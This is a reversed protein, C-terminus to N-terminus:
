VLESVKEILGKVWSKARELEGEQLPGETDLVVFTEAALVTAGKATLEDAIKPAAFGFTDILFRMFAGQTEKSFGTDFAAAKINQLGQGPITNLINKIPETFTGGHTPSGVLFLDINELEALADEQANLLSTVHQEGFGEIIAEAIKKTNGYVSDYVIVAKLTKAPAADTPLLPAETPVGGATTDTKVPVCAVLVTAGAVTALSALFERRSITKSRMITVGENRYQHSLKFLIYLKETLAFSYNSCGAM